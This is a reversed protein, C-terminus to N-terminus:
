RRSFRNKFAKITKAMMPAVKKVQPKRSDHHGSQVSSPPPPSVTCSTSPEEYSRSEESAVHNNSSSISSSSFPTFPKIRIKENVVAAGTGFKEQRRRVDRPPKVETNVFAMKAQRVKPKNAHASRINETLTQLRRERAEHLRLYLERWSEYEGPNEKKFDRQCHNRWLQDTDEVLVHNCEEIRYLQEPTCKEFVPELVSYPVGGVEYISDINNALVRICQEYLSMMKPLYATKSGSYVQMKSNLRRGTFGASEDEESISLLPAKKKQPSFLVPEISPLPRYNPQIMPLPIDPLVPVEDIKSLFALSAEKKDKRDSSAKSKHKSVEKRETRGDSVKKNSKEPASAVPKQINKKKKKQPLDYSLYSEFSMTPQEFDEDLGPEAPPVSIKISKKERSGQEGPKTKNKSKESKERHPPEHDKESMRGKEHDMKHKDSKAKEHYKIKKSDLADESQDKSVTHRHKEKKHSHERSEPSPLKERSSGSYSPFDPMEKLSPKERKKEPNHSKTESKHKEKHSSKQDKSLKHPYNLVRDRSVNPSSYTPEPSYGRGDESDEQDSYQEKGSGSPSRYSDDFENEYENLDEEPSPSRSRPRKKSSSKIYEREEPEATRPIEQPVLKKWQAVLNKALEGVFEHKRLGNVTKGIGTDVLIDFTIPLESLRKLTKLLKKPEASASLRSQLKEVVEVVSEAMKLVPLYACRFNCKIWM